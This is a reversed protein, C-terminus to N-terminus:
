RPPASVGAPGEGRRSRCADAYVHAVGLVVFMSVWLVIMTLEHYRSYMWVGHSVETLRGHSSLFYRGNEVKGSGASGGICLSIACFLVFNVVAVAVFGQVFQRLPRPLGELPDPKPPPDDGDTTEYGGSRITQQIRWFVSDPFHTPGDAPMYVSIPPDTLFRIHSDAYRERSFYNRAVRGRKPCPNFMGRKQGGTAFDAFPVQVWGLDGRVELRDPFVAVETVGSVGKVHSPAFRVSPEYEPPPITM